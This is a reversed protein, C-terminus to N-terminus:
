FSHSEAYHEKAHTKPQIPDSDVVFGLITLRFFQLASVTSSRYREAAQRWAGLVTREALVVSHDNVTEDRCDESYFHRILKWFALMQFANENPKRVILRDDIEYRGTASISSIYEYVVQSNLNHQLRKHFACHGRFPGDRLDADHRIM